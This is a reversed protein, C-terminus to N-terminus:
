MRPALILGSQPAAVPCLATLFQFTRDACAQWTFRSARARATEALHQRLELGSLLQELAKEMEDPVEPDFYFAGNGAIEKMPGRNSCAIPLASAMAELLVSPLNECTSAFILADASWYVQSMRDAEVEGRYTSFLGNPDIRALAKRFSGLALGSAGGVMTLRLPFGRRVLRSCTKLVRCQHKYLDIHSVYLLHFPRSKSYRSIPEQPAPKRFFEEGVGHPIVVRKEPLRGIKRDLFNDAFRTLFVMGASRQFSRSLVLKLLKLRMAYSSVGYRRCEASDFPLMNQFMTVGRGVGEGLIGGPAFLLDCNRNASVPLFLMQWLVRPAVLDARVPIPHVRLWGPRGLRGLLSPTGWVHMREVGHKGPDAAALLHVLHRVAGGSRLNSADIGIRM